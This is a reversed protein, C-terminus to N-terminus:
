KDHALHRPVAVNELHAEDLTVKEWGSGRRRVAWFGEWVSVEGFLEAVALSVGPHFWQNTRPDLVFDRDADSHKRASDRDIQFIQLELDDGCLIGGENVLRSCKGLDNIVSLYRHDGDVFVLDFNEEALFPAVDDVPGRLAIVLNDNGSAAINHVFLKFIGGSALAKHMQDYVWGSNKNVNVYSRWPDVCFVRGNGNNLSKIAEAWTVASGGAWSGIELINFPRNSRGRCEHGVMHRMYFHRRSNGQRAAMYAGFYPKKKRLSERYALYSFFLSYRRIVLYMRYLRPFARKTRDKLSSVRM